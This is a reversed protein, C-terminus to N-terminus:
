SELAGNQRLFTLLPLLPLGLITFYDGDIKEFLQAGRDELRYGGVSSLVGDGCEKIYTDLFGDSFPRMTLSATERHSWIRTGNETVCVAALLHHTRGRLALLQDRLAALDPPKDFWAGDCELMQDAGIVLTNEYKMSIREAKLAALADAVAGPSAGDAKMALKIEEEDIGAPHCDVALGAQELLAARSRSASALVVPKRQGNRM